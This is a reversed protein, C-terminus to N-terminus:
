SPISLVMTGLEDPSCGSPFCWAHHSGQGIWGSQIDTDPVSTSILFYSAIHLVMLFPMKIVEIALQQGPSVNQGEPPFGITIGQATATVAWISAVLITHWHCHERVYGAYPNVQVLFMPYVRVFLLHEGEWIHMKM